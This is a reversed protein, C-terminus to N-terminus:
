ANSEDVIFPYTVLLAEVEVKEAEFIRALVGLHVYGVIALVCSYDRMLKM